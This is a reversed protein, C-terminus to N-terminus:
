DGVQFCAHHSQVKHVTVTLLAVHIPTAVHIYHNKLVRKLYLNCRAHEAFGSNVSDIPNHRWLM